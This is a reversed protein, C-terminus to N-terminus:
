CCYKTLQLIRKLRFHYKIVKYMILNFALQTEMTVSPNISGWNGLIRRSNTEMLVVVNCDIDTVMGMM